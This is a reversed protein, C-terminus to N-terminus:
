EAVAIIRIELSVGREIEGQPCAMPIEEVEKEVPARVGLADREGVDEIPILRVEERAEELDENPSHPRAQSRTLRTAPADANGERDV